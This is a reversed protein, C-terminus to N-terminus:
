LFEFDWVKLSILIMRLADLQWMEREWYEEIQWSLLGQQKITECFHKLLVM